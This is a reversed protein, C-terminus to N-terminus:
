STAPEISSPKAAHAWRTTENISYYPSYIDLFNNDSKITDSLNDAVLYEDGVRLVLVAHALNRQLDKVVVIRLQEARFGLQRMTVYKVISFDECDGSRQFFEMPSAWYDSKDYNTTDSRYHWQNVFQNVKKFVERDSLGSVRLSRIMGIWARVATPQSACGQDSKLCRTYMEDERAIKHLAKQWQPLADLSNIKYELTNFLSIEPQKEEAFAVSVTLWLVCFTLIQKM